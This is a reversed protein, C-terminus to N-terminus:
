TEKTREATNEVLVGVASAAAPGGAGAGAVAAQETHFFAELKCWIAKKLVAPRLGSPFAPLECSFFDEVDKEKLFKLEVEHEKDEATCFVTEMLWM